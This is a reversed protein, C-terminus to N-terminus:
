LKKVTMMTMDSIYYFSEFCGAEFIKPQNISKISKKFLKSVVYENKINYLTKNFKQSSSKTLKNTNKTQKSPYNTLSQKKNAYM